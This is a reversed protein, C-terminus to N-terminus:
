AGVRAPAPRKAAADAICADWNDYIGKVDVTPETKPAGGNHKGDVPNKASETAREARIAARVEDASKGSKIHALTAAADLGAIFCLDEVATVRAAAAETAAQTAAATATATAQSVATEKERQHDALSIVKDDKNETSM